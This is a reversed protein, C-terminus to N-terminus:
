FQQKFSTLDLNLQNRTKWYSETNQSRLRLEDRQFIRMGIAIPTFMIFFIIALVIPSVIMGLIIGFRMWLKNLPLLLSDKVITIIFFLLGISGLILFVAEKDQYFFYIASIFFVAAFFFGFKRNSPLDYINHAM